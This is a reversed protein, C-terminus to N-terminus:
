DTYRHIAGAAASLAAVLAPYQWWDWWQRLMVVGAAVWVSVCWACSLWTGFWRPKSAMWEEDAVYM